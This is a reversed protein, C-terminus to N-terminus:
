ASQENQMVGKLIFDLFVGGDEGAEALFLAECRLKGRRLFLGTEKEWALAEWSLEGPQIGEPLGGLLVAAATEGGDDCVAAREARLDVTITGELRKGYVERVEGGPGRTEGLYGCFGLAKGEAAGVAVTALPTKREAAWKAPFAAEAELGADRLAAIVADRIQRLEKMRGGKGTGACGALPM